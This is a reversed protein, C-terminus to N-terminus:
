PVVESQQSTKSAYGDKVSIAKLFKNILVRVKDLLKRQSSDYNVLETLTSLLKSKKSRERVLKVSSETSSGKVKVQEVLEPNGSKEFCDRRAEEILDYYPQPNDQFAKRLAPGIAQM